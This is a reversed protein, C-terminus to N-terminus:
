DQQLVAIVGNLYDFETLLEENEAMIVKMKYELKAIKAILEERTMDSYEKKLM